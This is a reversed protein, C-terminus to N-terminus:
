AYRSRLADLLIFVYDWAVAGAVNHLDKDTSFEHYRMELDKIKDLQLTTLASHGLSVEDFIICFQRMKSMIPSHLVYGLEDTVGLRKGEHTFVLFNVDSHELYFQSLEYSALNHPNPRLKGGVIDCSTYGKKRLGEVLRSLREKETSPQFSGYITIQLLPRLRLRERKKKEFFYLWRDTFGTAM